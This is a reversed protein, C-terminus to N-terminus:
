SPIVALQNGNHTPPSIDAMDNVLTLISWISPTYLALTWSSSLRLALWFKFMNILANNLHRKYGSLRLVGVVERPFRDWCQGSESYLFTEWHVTQDEGPLTTGNECTRGHAAPACGLAERQKGEEPCLLFCQSWRKQSSLGPARLEEECSTGGLGRVLMAAKKPHKWPGWCGKKQTTSVLPACPM